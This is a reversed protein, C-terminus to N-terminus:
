IEKWVVAKFMYNHGSQPIKYELTGFGLAKKGGLEFISYYTTRFLIGLLSTKKDPKYWYLKENSSIDLRVRIFDNTLEYGTIRDSEWDYIGFFTSLLVQEVERQDNIDIWCSYGAIDREKLEEIRKIVEAIKSEELIQVRSDEILLDTLKRRALELM